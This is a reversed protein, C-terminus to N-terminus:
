VTVSAITNTMALAFNIFKATCVCQVRIRTSLSQSRRTKLRIVQSEFKKLQHVKAKSRHGSNTWSCNHQISAATLALFHPPNKFCPRHNGEHNRKPLQTLDLSGALWGTTRFALISQGTTNRETWSHKTRGGLSVVSRSLSLTSTNTPSPRPGRSITSTMM